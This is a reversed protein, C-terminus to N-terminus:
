LAELEAAIRAWEAKHDDTTKLKGADRKSNLEKELEVFFPKWAAARDGLTGRNSIATAQIISDADRLVGAAIQAQVSRFSKALGKVEAKTDGAVLKVWKAVQSEPIVVPDVPPAVDGVTVTRFEADIGDGKAGAVYFRFTGGPASFVARKGGDIVLFNPTAPEVIWDFSVAESKSADLIVLQGSKVKDPCELVVLADKDAKAITVSKVPQAMYGTVGAALLALTVVGSQWCKKWDFM